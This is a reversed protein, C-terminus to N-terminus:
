RFPDSKYMAADCHPCRPGGTARGSSDETEPDGASGDGGDASM